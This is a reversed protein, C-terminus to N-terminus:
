VHARGIELYLIALAVLVVHQTWVRAKAIDGAAIMRAEDALFRWVSWMPGILLRGALTGQAGVLARGVPGLERWGGPTWYRSEPDDLPDTLREDRHHTLHTQRYREFPLWLWIPPTALLANVRRSRTPHGHMAEHQASGWWASVWAALPLWLWLPLAAHFATLGLWAAYLFAFLALTPWEIRASGRAWRRIMRVLEGRPWAHWLRAGAPFPAAM